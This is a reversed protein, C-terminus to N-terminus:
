PRPKLKALYDDLAKALGIDKQAQESLFWKHELVQCYLEAADEPGPQLQALRDQTPEWCETLWRFAAVSSPIRRGLERSLGARLEEVENLLMEAQREQAVLGTLDQLRHRHYDRDTVLTRMTLKDSDGTATLQIERVSFGLANLARVREQIRWREETKVTVERNVECWLAEYRRRINSGIDEPRLSEPLKAVVGIDLLDGAVNDEMIM